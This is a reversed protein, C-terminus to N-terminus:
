ADDPLCASGSSTSVACSLLPLSFVVAVACSEVDFRFLRLRRGRLTAFAADIRAHM